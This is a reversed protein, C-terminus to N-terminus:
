SSSAGYRQQVAQPSVGLAGAISTWSAGRGRASIVLRDQRARASAIAAANDALLQLADDRSNGAGPSAGPPKTDPPPVSAARVAAAAQRRQAERRAGSSGKKRTM